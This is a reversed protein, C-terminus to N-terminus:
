YRHWVRKNGGTSCKDVLFYISGSYTSLCKNTKRNKLRGHAGGTWDWQQDRHGTCKHMVVAATGYVTLCNHTNILPRFTGDNNRIWVQHKIDKHRPGHCSVQRVAAAGTNTYNTRSDLCKGTQMSKYQRTFVQTHVDASASSASGVLVTGTAVLAFTVQKFNM